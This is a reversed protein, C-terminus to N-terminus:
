SETVHTAGHSVYVPQLGGPIARFEMLLEQQYAHVVTSYATNCAQIIRRIAHLDTSRYEQDRFVPVPEGAGILWAVGDVMVQDYMSELTGAYTTMRLRQLFRFVNFGPLVLAYYNRKLPLYRRVLEDNLLRCHGSELEYAVWRRLDGTWMSSHLRIHNHVNAFEGNSALLCNLGSTLAPITKSPIWLNQGSLPMGAHIARIFGFFEHKMRLHPDGKERLACLKPGLFARMDMRQNLLADIIEKPHEIVERLMWCLVSFVQTMHFRCEASTPGSTWLPAATISEFSIVLPRIGRQDFVRIDHEVGPQHVIYISPPEVAGRRGGLLATLLAQTDNCFLLEFYSEYDGTRQRYGYTGDPNDDCRVTACEVTKDNSDQHDSSVVQLPFHLMRHRLLFNVFFTLTRHSRAPTITRSTYAETFQTRVLEYTQGICESIREHIADSPDTSDFYDIWEQSTPNPHSM